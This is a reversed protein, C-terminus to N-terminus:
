APAPAATHVPSPVRAVVLSLGVAAGTAVLLLLWQPVPTSWAPDVVYVLPGRSGVAYRRAAIVFVYVQGAAFLAALAPAAWGPVAFRPPRAGTAAVTGALVPVGAWLPLGYRGFWKTLIPPIQLWTIVVPVAVAVVAVGVVVAADRRSASALAVLVIVGVAAAWAIGAWPVRIEGTGFYSVSEDVYQWTRTLGRWLSFPVKPLVRDERGVYAIWALAVVVAAGAVAGGARVAPDRALERARARPALLLSMVLAVVALVPGFTRTNALVVFSVVAGAVLSRAATPGRALAAVTAWLSIAATIELGNPNVSGALYLVLPTAAAAVGVVAWRGLRSAATFAVTLFGAAAVAAVARAAYVGARSPAVRLPLAVLAPFLPPYRGASTVTERTGPPDAPAPACAPTIRPRGRFCATSPAGLVALSAPVRVRTAFGYVTRVEEGYLQRHGIAAAKVVHAAEDPTTLLPSSWAWALMLGLLLLFWCWWPPRRGDRPRTSSM